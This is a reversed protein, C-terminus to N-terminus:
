GLSIRPYLPGDISLVAELLRTTAFRHRTRTILAEIRGNERRLLKRLDRVLTTAAARDTSSLVLAYTGEIVIRDFLEAGHIQLLDRAALATRLAANGRGEALHRRARVALVLAKVRYLGLEGALREASAMLTDGEGDGRGLCLLGLWLSALAQGRRDEIERAGFLADRLRTEAADLRGLDIMLGGLRASAELELRREGARRALKAARTLSGFARRPRGLLRYTRGRLLQAAAEIGPLKWHEQGRLDALARDVRKLTSELDGDLLEILGLQLRAVARQAGHAADAISREALRRADRLNGVHALVAALRRRAESALEPVGAQDAFQVANGFLGGAVGYQGTAVAHRGHLLYVKCAATPHEGPDLELEALRDLWRREERRHGLRDAADAAAELFAVRDDADSPRPPREAPDVALADLGWQALTRVRQPQGRRITAQLLPRLLRLLEDWQGGARLHFAREYGDRLPLGAGPQPALALAAARHLRRRRHPSMARYVAERLAPRAFRFAASSPVLWGSQVLRTLLRDLEARTTPPFARELFEPRIRRGVVALRELWLRDGVDLRRYRERIMDDLSAPAPLEDPAVDLALRPDSASWPHADGADTASRLIESTLGPNGHARDWLATAIRLQPESPHFRAAVFAEVDARTWPGVPLEAGSGRRAIEDELRALEHERHVPEGVRRGLVLLLRTREFERAVDTLAELTGADAYNVDDVFVIAFTHQGLGVLWRALARPIAVATADTSGPELTALLADAEAPPVLSHVRERQRPGPGAGEPLHLDRRLLRLLPECPREEVIPRCRTRLFLPPDTSRRARAAFEAVLRSKGSGAEGALFVVRGRGGAVETAFGRLADLEARRGVWPTKWAVDLGHREDRRAEPDFAVRARWWAGAEGDRLRAAVESASPRRAPDWALLDLALEDFFPSLEPVVLSPPDIRATELRALYDEAAQGPLAIPHRGTGLEYMVVGLAFVDAAASGPEGRALEPALYALTGRGRAAGDEAGPRWALGVDILTARGEDSLRLNEPKVDGHVWGAAHLAALGGAVDTLAHRLVPEPLPGEDALLESLTVGPVLHTVLCPAGDREGYWIGRVLGPHRVGLAVEAETAFAARAREDGRLEPLLTKIAVATDIPADGAPELLVGRVVRGMAGCGLEEALEIRPARTTMRGSGPPLM